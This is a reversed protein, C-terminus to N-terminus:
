HAVKNFDHSRAVAGTIDDLTTPDMHTLMEYFVRDYHYKRAQAETSAEGFTRVAERFAVWSEAPEKCFIPIKSKSKPNIGTGKYTLLVKRNLPVTSTFQIEKERWKIIFYGLGNDGRGLPETCYTVAECLDTVPRNYPWSQFVNYAVNPTASVTDELYSNVKSIKNDIQFNIVRDGSQWAVESPIACDDPWQIANKEDLKLEVTYSLLSTGFSLKMVFDVVHKCYRTYKHLTVEGKSAKFERVLQDISIEQTAM